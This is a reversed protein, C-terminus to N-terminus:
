SCVWFKVGNGVSVSSTYSLLVQRIPYNGACDYQTAKAKYYWAGGWRAWWDWFSDDGQVSRADTLYTNGGTSTVSYAMDYIWVKWGSQGINYKSTIGVQFYKVNCLCPISYLKGTQFVSHVHSDNHTYSAYTKYGSIADGSAAYEWTVKTTTQDFRMIINVYTIASVHGINLPYPKIWKRTIEGPDLDRCSQAPECSRWIEAGVRIYGDRKLTVTAVYGWDEGPVDYTFVTSAGTCTLHNDSQIKLPDMGDFNCTFRLKK